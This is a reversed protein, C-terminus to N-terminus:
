ILVLGYKNMSDDRCFYWQLVVQLLLTEWKIALWGNDLVIEELIITIQSNMVGDRRLM